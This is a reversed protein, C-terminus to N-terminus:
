LGLVTYLDARYVVHVCAHVCRYGGGVCVCVSPGLVQGVIDTSHGSLVQGKIAASVGKTYFDAKCVLWLRM